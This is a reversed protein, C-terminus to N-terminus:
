IDVEKDPDLNNQPQVEDPNEDCVPVPDGGPLPKQNIVGGPIIVLGLLLIQLLLRKRM